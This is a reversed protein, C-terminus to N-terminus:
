LRGPGSREQRAELLRRGSARGEAARALKALPTQPPANSFHYDHKFSDPGSRERTVLLLEEPGERSGAMKATVRAAAVEVVLPGKEADRVEIKTWATAPLSDCWKDVRQFPM